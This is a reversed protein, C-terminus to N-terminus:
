AEARKLLMQFKSKFTELDRWHPKEIRGLAETPLAHNANEMSTMLIAPIQDAHIEKLFDLSSEGPLIEDLLVLDPRRRLIEMRAEVTNSALGSVKVNPLSAILDQMMLRMEEVDDVILIQMRKAAIQNSVSM